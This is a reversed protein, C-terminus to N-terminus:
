ERRLTRAYDGAAERLNCTKRRCGGACGTGYAGRFPRLRSWMWGRTRSFNTLYARIYRCATRRPASPPRRRLPEYACVLSGGKMARIARVHFDGITGLGIIGFGHGGAEAM